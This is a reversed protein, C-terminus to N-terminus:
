ARPRPASSPSWGSARFSHVPAPHNLLRLANAIVLLSAGTDAAIAAWLTAHGAVTLVVFLAKLGLAFAINARIIRLTRRSLRVLWPVRRLEGTMLAAHASELAVDTGAGMAIGLDAVALAAADNIGDGVFAVPGEAALEEVLRAKDEPLLGAHVEDIGVARGVARATEPGDGTLLAIRRIGARRLERVAEVAGPRPEDSLALIGCVHDERGVAVVTRGGQAVRPLTADLWPSGLGREALLRASGLWAPRGGVTGEVGRGPLVRVAEAAPLEVGRETAARVVAEGLPHTSWRELAAAVALVEEPSHGAAAEVATVRPRGTTVTGTKDLAVAVLAAPVEVVDGGKLLVGHRAATALAAVVAVPTAIVLACPCGIVLLVLAHYFWPAAEGLGALPPVAATLVALALIAPTYVRAFRDIWREVRARRRSAEAVRRVMRALLTDSAPRLVKLTLTGDLLVSGAPVADGAEASAPRSEGTVASADVLSAGEVVEGDLPVREGALVVIREGPEVSEAPVVTGGGGRLVRATPPTLTMLARVARRARAVSWSELLLSLAFLFAVAAGELWQGLLAAGAVAVTMLLNMDPRLRRVAAVARPVFPAAGAAIAAAYLAVAPPVPGGAGHVLGVAEALSGRLVADVAVAAAIGAGSALVPATKRLSATGPGPPTLSAEVPVADLGASAVARLIARDSLEGEDAHVAMTGELLDFELRGAGGALPGLARRLAEVEEACDMGAIRFRRVPPDDPVAVACGDCGCSPPPVAPAHRIDHDNM